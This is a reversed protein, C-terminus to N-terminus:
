AARPTPCTDCVLSGDLLKAANGLIEPGHLMASYQPEWGNAILRCTLEDPDPRHDWV